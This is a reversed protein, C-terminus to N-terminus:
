SVFYISLTATTAWRLNWLVRRSVFKRDGRSLDISPVTGRGM